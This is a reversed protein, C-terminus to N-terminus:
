RRKRYFLSKPATETGRQLQDSPKWVQLSSHSFSDVIAGRKDLSFALSKPNRDLTLSVKSRARAPRSLSDCRFRDIFSAISSVLAMQTLTCTECTVPKDGTYLTHFAASPQINFTRMM